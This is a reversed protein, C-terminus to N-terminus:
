EVYKMEWDALWKPVTTSQVEELTQGNLNWYGGDLTEGHSYATGGIAKGDTLFVYVDVQDVSLPHNEVIFKETEITKGLYEAADLPQMGWYINYPMTTLKEKTLVYSSVPGEATVITYGEQELAEAAALRNAPIEKAICGTMGLVIILIAWYRM